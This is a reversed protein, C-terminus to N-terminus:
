NKSSECTFQIDPNIKNIIEQIKRIDEETEQWIILCDDLYRKWNQVFYVHKPIETGNKQLTGYLETSNQLNAYTLAVKTGMVTGKIQKYAKSNFM